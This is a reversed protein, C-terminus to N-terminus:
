PGPCQLQRSVNEAEQQYEPIPANEAARHIGACFQAFKLRGALVVAAQRLHAFPDELAAGVQKAIEQNQKADLDTPFQALDTLAELRLREPQGPQATALLISLAHADHTATLGRLAAQTLHVEPNSIVIAQLM